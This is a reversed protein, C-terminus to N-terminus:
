VHRVCSWGTSITTTESSTKTISASTASTPAPTVTTPTTTSAAATPALFVLFPDRHGLKASKDLISLDLAQLFDVEERQGDLLVLNNIEEDPGRQLVFHQLNHRHLLLSPSTLPGPELGKNGDAVVVAVHPEPNLAGLLYSSGDPASDDHGLQGNDRYPSAEPTVLNSLRMGDRTLNSALTARNPHPEDRGGTTSADHRGGDGLFQELHRSNLVAVGRGLAGSTCKSIEGLSGVSGDGLGIGIEGGIQPLFSNELLRGELLECVEERLIMADISHLALLSFSILKHIWASQM